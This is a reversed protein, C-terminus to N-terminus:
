DGRAHRTPTGPTGRVREYAFPHIYDEKVKFQSTAANLQEALSVMGQITQATEHAGASTELTISSITQMAGALNRTVRAQEESAASIEEILESSQRVAESIDQLARGAEGALVSGSKVEKMGAEMASLAESTEHQVAKILNGVDRTARSSREALKRIEEAVVSFGLGAEGAHAAEIAANLALLNTQSAIDNILDIIESIESSRVGLLRMKESTEQVASDIRLM